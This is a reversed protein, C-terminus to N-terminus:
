DRLTIVRGWPLHEGSSGNPTVVWLLSCPPMISPENAYGDTFYICGDFLMDQNENMWQFVPDFITGGRGHVSTPFAGQYSYVAQVRADCEIITIKSGSQYIGDVESFFTALFNDSISASTDIAVLLRHVRRIRLGPYTGYRRSKRRVTNVSNARVTASAFLRMQRRWDIKPATKELWASIMQNLQGPILGYEKSNTSEKAQIVQSEVEQELDARQEKSPAHLGQKSWGRHDSHHAGTLRNLNALDKPSCDSNNRQELLLNYYTEATRNPPLNFSPFSNLTIASKPLEWPAGIYQNVEIDAAINYLRADAVDHIRFIHKLMVHLAEHKIVAARQERSKLERMFFKPNVLLVVYDRRLAVGCTSITDTIQRVAGSLFHGFFPDESLLAIITRDLELKADHFLQSNTAQVGGVSLYGDIQQNEASSIRKRDNLPLSERAVILVREVEQQLIKRELGGLGSWYQHDSHWTSNRLELLRKASRSAEVKLHNLGVKELCSWLQALQKCIWEAPAKPQLGLDPFDALTLSEPFEDMFQNAELDAAIPFLRQQLKTLKEQRFPHMLFLHMEEHRLCLARREITPLAIFFKPNLVLFIGHKEFSLAITETQNEDVRWGLSLLVQAHLPERHYLYNVAKSIEKYVLAHDGKPNM